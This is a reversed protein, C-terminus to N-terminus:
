VKSENYVIYKVDKVELVM